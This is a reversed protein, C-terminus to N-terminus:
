SFNLSEKSDLIIIIQKEYQLVRQMKIASNVILWQLKGNLIKEFFTVLDAQTNPWMTKFFEKISYKM